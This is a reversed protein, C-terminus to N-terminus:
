HLIMTSIYLPQETVIQNPRSSASMTTEVM